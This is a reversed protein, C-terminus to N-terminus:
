FPLDDGGLIPPPLTVEKKLTLRTKNAELWDWGVSTPFYGLYDEYGDREARNAVFGQRELSRLALATALETFGARDMDKNVQYASMAGGSFTLHSGLVSLAAVESANLGDTQAGGLLQIQSLEQLQEQRSVKAKLQETIRHRLLDFDSPSDTSYRVINRHQVDFPFRTRQEACAMVVPKNMAVAFGLEYWVNPNDTTIEAFCCKAKRIGDEIEEIPIAVSPDKDVRYPKLGSDRIAPEYVDRYRKDFVGQDFPQIVFCTSVPNAM